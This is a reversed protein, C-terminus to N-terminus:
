QEVRSPNSKHFLTRIRFECNDSGIKMMAQLFSSEIKFPQVVRYSKLANTKPM